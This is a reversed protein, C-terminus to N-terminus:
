IFVFFLAKSRKCGSAQHIVDTWVINWELLFVYASGGTVLEESNHDMFMAAMGHADTCAGIKDEILWTKIFSSLRKAVLNQIGMCTSTLM